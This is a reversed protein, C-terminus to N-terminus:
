TKVGLYPDLGSETRRVYDRDLVHLAQVVVGQSTACSSSSGHKIKIIEASGGVNILIGKSVVLVVPADHPLTTCRVKADLMKSSLDPPAGKIDARMFAPDDKLAPTAQAATAIVMASAALVAVLWFTKKM